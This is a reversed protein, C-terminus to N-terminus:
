IAPKHIYGWIPRTHNSAEKMDMAEILSNVNPMQVYGDADAAPHGPM